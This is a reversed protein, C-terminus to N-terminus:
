LTPVAAPSCFNLLRQTRDSLMMFSFIYMKIQNQSKKRVRVVANCKTYRIVMMMMGM